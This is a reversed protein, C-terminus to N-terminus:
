NEEHAIGQQGRGARQGSERVHGMLHTEGLGLKCVFLLRGAALFEEGAHFLDDRPLVQEGDERGKIGLALAAARGNPQLADQPHIEELLPIAQGVFREFVGDVVALGHPVEGADVERGLAHGVGRRQQFEAVQEFGVVKALAEKAGDVGVQGGTAQRHAFARQDIGGEDGGRGGGLVLVPFAVGFHVLGALAVLPIEPHLGVDTGVAVALQDVGDDAGGGVDGVNGFGGFEEV